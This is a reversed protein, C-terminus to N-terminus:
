IGRNAAKWSGRPTRPTKSYFYVTKNGPPQQRQRNFDPNVIVYYYLDWYSSNLYSCESLACNATTNKSLSKYIDSGNYATVPITISAVGHSFLEKCFMDVLTGSNVFDNIKQAFGFKAEVNRGNNESINIFGAFSNDPALIIYSYKKLEEELFDKEIFRYDLGYPIVFRERDKMAEMLGHLLFNIKENPLLSPKLIKYDGIEISEPLNMTSSVTPLPCSMNQIVANEGNEKNMEPTHQFVISSVLKDGDFASYPIEGCCKMESRNLLELVKKDSESVLINVNHFNLEHIYRVYKNIIEPLPLDSTTDEDSSDLYIHLTACRNIYDVKSLGIVGLAKETDPSNSSIMFPYSLNKSDCYEILYPSDPRIAIDSPKQMRETLKKDSAIYTIEDIVNINASLSLFKKFKDLIEKKKDSSLERNVEFRISASMEEFNIDYLGIYGIYKRDKSTIAARFGNTMSNIIEEAASDPLNSDIKILEKTEDIYADFSGILFNSSELKVLFNDKEKPM